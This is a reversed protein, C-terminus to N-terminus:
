ANEASKTDEDSEEEGEAGEEGEEGEELEEEEPEEEAKPVLVTLVTFNVDYPIEVNGELPIDEVHVSDGIDLETVDLTIAEPIEHPLCFVELERRVIQLTGGAEVGAAIGTTVVPVNVKIKSELDVEYLDLHIFSRTLPHTQFEKIMVARPKDDNGDISLGFLARYASGQKLVAELDLSSITLMAPETKPGYLVAPIQGQRRMQKAPGDGKTTRLKANLKILDM